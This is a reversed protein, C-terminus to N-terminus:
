PTLRQLGSGDAGMVYIANKPFGQTTFAVRSGDPSLRAFFGEVSLKRLGSGDASMVYVSAREADDRKSCFIISRGDPSFAPFINHGVGNTLLKPNSGDADMVWVQDKRDGKEAYYVIRRGDPSWQPNFLRSEGRTLRSQHTGDADMVYLQHLGDRDSVFAIRRGDPSFAPTSDGAPDDTLQRLGTGDANVVYIDSMAERGRRASFAIRRGDPSWDTYFTDLGEQVALREAHTGDARMVYLGWRGSGGGRLMTFALRKGDPSWSVDQYFAADAPIEMRQQPPPPVHPQATQARTGASLGPWWPASLIVLTIYLTKL